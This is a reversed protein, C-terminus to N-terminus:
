QFMKEPSRTRDLQLQLGTAIAVNGPVLEPEDNGLEHHTGYERSRFHELNM